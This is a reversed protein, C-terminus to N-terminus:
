RSNATEARTTRRPAAGRQYLREYDAVMARIDFHAEARRRGARGLRRAEDPNQWLRVLAGALAGTDGARVLLGTQGDLVVEPNGCVATAVVPLGRAMAELITLSIGETRSALTFCSARALLAAIDKVEGLFRVREAIGLTRALNTLETRLPGDGAIELRVKPAEAALAAIAHLLTAIDKEPSLRAVCVVPGGACPGQYAYKALDIGNHLTVVKRAPLGTEVTYRASDRSVCVFAHPMRGAWAAVRRQRATIQPLSGHHQTHIHRRVRALKVALSGYLLPKDDHTHVVDIEHDRFVRALRLIMRPRLGPPEDLALVPWDLKEIAQALKGRGSLSVFVLNHRGRDAHRAFEVLLREQGGVDLGLSVHAVRLSRCHCSLGSM